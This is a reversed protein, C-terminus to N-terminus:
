FHWGSGSSFPDFGIALFFSWWWGLLILDTVATLLLLVCLNIFIRLTIGAKIKSSFVDVFYFALVLLILPILALLYDGSLLESISLITVPGYPVFLGIWYAVTKVIPLPETTSYLVAWYLATLVAWTSFFSVRVFLSKTM